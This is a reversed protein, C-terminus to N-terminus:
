AGTSGFGDSGRDSGPLDGHTWEIDFLPTVNPMLVLQGIREGHEVVVDADSGGLGPNMAQVFLPGRYGPDIVSIQVLLGRKRLASSRGIVMGWVHDPLAVKIGCPLDVWEGKKVTHQGVTYLDLGADTEHAKAPLKGTYVSDEEDFAEAVRTPAAAVLVTGLPGDADAVAGPPEPQGGLRAGLRAAKRDAEDVVAMGTDPKGLLGYEILALAFVLLDTEGRIRLKRAVNAREFTAMSQWGQPLFQATIEGLVYSLRLRAGGQSEWENALRGTAVWGGESNGVLKAAQALWDIAGVDGAVAAGEGVILPEPGKEGVILPEPVFGEGPGESLLREEERGVAHAMLEGDDPVREPHDAAQDPGYDAMNETIGEEDWHQETARDAM